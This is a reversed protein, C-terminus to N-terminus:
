SSATSSGALNRSATVNSSSAKAIQCRVLTAAEAQRTSVLHLV